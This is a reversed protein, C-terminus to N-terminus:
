SANACIPLCQGESKPSLVIEPSMAGPIKFFFHLDWLFYLLLDLLQSWGGSNSSSFWRALFSPQTSSFKPIVPDTREETASPSCSGGLSLSLLPGVAWWVTPCPGTPTNPLSSHASGEQIGVNFLSAWPPSQFQM